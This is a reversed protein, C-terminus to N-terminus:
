PHEIDIKLIARNVEETLSEAEKAEWTNRRFREGNENVFTIQFRKIFRGYKEGNSFDANWDVNFRDKVMQIQKDAKKGELEKQSFYQQAVMQKSNRICDNQRYLISAVVDDVSPLNWAKCDFEYLTHTKIIDTADEKSCPTNEIDNVFMLQNFKSSAMSAIVSQLKCLRNGFFAEKDGIDSLVLTIEDSQVYATICNTVNECLYIATQNMMEIFKKDFPVEFCNKIKKSFARGDLMIMIYSNPCLKYDTINRYYLYKEKLTEFKM